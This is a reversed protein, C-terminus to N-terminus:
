LFSQLVQSATCLAGAKSSGSVENTYSYVTSQPIGNGQVTIIFAGIEECSYLKVLTGSEKVFVKALEIM